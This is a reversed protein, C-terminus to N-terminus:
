HLYSSFVKSIYFQRNTICISIISSTIIHIISMSTSLTIRHLRTALIRVLALPAVQHTFRYSISTTGGPPWIELQYLHRWRTTLNLVLVLITNAKWNILVLSTLISMSYSLLPSFHRSTIVQSTEGTAINRKKRSIFDLMFRCCWNLKRLQVAPPRMKGVEYCWSM